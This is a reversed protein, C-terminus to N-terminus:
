FVVLWGYCGAFLVFPSIQCHQLNLVLSIGASSWTTELSHVCSVTIKATGDWGADGQILCNVALEREKESREAGLACPQQRETETPPQLRRCGQSALQNRAIGSPRVPPRQPRTLRDKSPATQGVSDSLQPSAKPRNTASAWHPKTPGPPSSPLPLIIQTYIEKISKCRKYKQNNRYINNGM